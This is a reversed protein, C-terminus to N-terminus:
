VEVEIATRVESYIPVSRGLDELRVVVALPINSVNRQWRKFAAIALTYHGDSYSTKHQNWEYTAHQVTGRSRKQFSPRFQLEKPLTLEDEDDFALDLETEQDSEDPPESMALVIEDRLKDGRFM